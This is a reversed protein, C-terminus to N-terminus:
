PGAEVPSAQSGSPQLLSFGEARGLVTAQPLLALRTPEDVLLLPAAASGASRQLHQSLQEASQPLVQCHCYWDLSPRGYPHSSLVLGHAPVHQRLLAAVPRVPFAENLEWLWSGSSFLAALALLQSGLLAVVLLRPRRRRWVLLTVVAFGAALLALALVLSFAEARSLLLGAGVLGALALLGYLGIWLPRWRLPQGQWLGALPVSAALALFPLLPLIYWPLKTQTFSIALLYLAPPLLLLRAWRQGRQQWAAIFGAVAPLLLPLTGKLLEPGYYWFPQSHGEIGSSVRQSLQQELNFVLYGMGYVRAQLGYWLVVPLVGLLLGLWLWRSRLLCPGGDWLAFALVMVLLLLGLSGKCLVAAGFGLGIALRWPPRERGLVAGLLMLLLFTVSPGDMMVLRSVRAAPLLVVFGLAAIVAAVRQQLVVRAIVYLLPIALASLLACPLRGALETEGGLRFGLAVLWFLLPPKVQFPQDFYHPHIWDGREVMERAVVAYTGEDWDRLPVGGLNHLWLLMGVASVLLLLLVEAHRHLWARAGAPLVATQLQSRSSM